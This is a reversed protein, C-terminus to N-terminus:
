KMLRNPSFLKSTCSTFIRWNSSLLYNTHLFLILHSDDTFNIKQGQAKIESICYNYQPIEIIIFFFFMEIFEGYMKNNHCEEREICSLDYNLNLIYM